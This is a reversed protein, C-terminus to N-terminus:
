QNYKFIVQHTSGSYETRIKEESLLDRIFGKVLSTTYDIGQKSLIEVIQSISFAQYGFQSKIIQELQKITVPEVKIKNNIDEFSNENSLSEQLQSIDIKSLDLEGKFAKQSLSGYLNELELLSASALCKLENIQEVIRSYKRQDKLEPLVLKFSKIKKLNLYPQGGGAVQSWIYDRYHPLRLQQAIFNLEAKEPDISAKAVGTTSLLAKYEKDFICSKGITNGVRAILIDGFDVKSRILEQYKSELIFKFEQGYFGEDRINNIRIIPIGEEFYDTNKLSSGFPGDVIANKENKAVDELTVIPLGEKNTFHDGFMELFTSKLFEDLLEISEKRKQILSECASLVKAIRKQNDLSPLFVHFKSLDDKNFGAQAARVGVSLIFHQFIPAKLLTLLYKKSLVKEDPITKMIAVNYTGELGTLIKGVSAGYRGILVDDSKCTKLRKSVKVYEVNDKHSQTFDRIQLMRVFGEKKTKSWEKKPPQSGGQFDCIDTLKYKKIEM